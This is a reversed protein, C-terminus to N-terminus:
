GLSAAAATLGNGEANEEVENYAIEVSVGVERAKIGCSGANSGANAAGPFSPQLTFDRDAKVHVWFRGAVGAELSTAVIVYQGQPLALRCSVDRRPVFPRSLHKTEATILVQATDDKNYASKPTGSSPAVVGTATTSGLGSTTTTTGGSSSRHQSSNDRPGIQLFVQTGQLWGKGETFVRLFDGMEMWFMGRLTRHLLESAMACESWQRSSPGWDGLYEGPEAGRQRAAWPDRLRLLRTGGKEFAELVCYSVGSCLGKMVRNSPPFLMGGDAAEQQDGGGWPCRLWAQRS